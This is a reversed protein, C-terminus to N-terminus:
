KKASEINIMAGHFSSHTAMWLFWVHKFVWSHHKTAKTLHFYFSWIFCTRSVWSRCKWQKQLTFTSDYSTTPVMLFNCKVLNSEANLIKPEWTHLSDIMIQSFTAKQGLPSQLPAWVHIHDYTYERVRPFLVFVSEWFLVLAYLVFVSVFLILSSPLFCERPYM